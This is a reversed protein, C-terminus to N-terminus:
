WVSLGDGAHISDLVPQAGRVLQKDGTKGFMFAFDEFVEAGGQVALILGTGDMLFQEHILDGNLVEAKEPEVVDLVHGGHDAHIVGQLAFADDCVEVAERAVVPADASLEAGELVAEIGEIPLATIM